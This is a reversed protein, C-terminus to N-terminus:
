LSRPLAFGLRCFACRMRAAVAIDFTTLREQQEVEIAARPQKGYAESIGEGSHHSNLLIHWRHLRAFRISSRIM